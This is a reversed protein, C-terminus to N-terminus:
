QAKPKQLESLRQSVIEGLRDLIETGMDRSFRDHDESGIALVGATGESRIPILAASLIHQSRDGFLFQNKEQDVPGCLSADRDVFDLFAQTQPDEAASEASITFLKLTVAEANFEKRLAITLADRVDALSQAAILQLVLGHLRASIQEFERARSILHSLRKRETDLQGRLVGVQHEILSVASGSAHPVRISALLDPHREFFDPHDRLYAVILGESASDETVSKAPEQTSM